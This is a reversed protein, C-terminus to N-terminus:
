NTPEYVESLILDRVNTKYMILIFSLPRSNLALVFFESNNRIEDHWGGNNDDDSKQWSSDHCKRM